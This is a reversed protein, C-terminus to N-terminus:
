EMKQIAEDSRHFELHRLAIKRYFRGLEDKMGSFQKIMIGYVGVAEIFFVENPEDSYRIVMAVHDYESKSYSRIM